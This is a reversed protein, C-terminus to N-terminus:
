RVRAHKSLNGVCSYLVLVFKMSHMEKMFETEIIEAENPLVAKFTGMTGSLDGLDRFVIKPFM